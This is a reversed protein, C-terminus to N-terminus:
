QYEALMKTVCDRIIQEDPQLSTFRKFQAIAQRIFMEMGPITKAGVSAAERLLLTQRPNYITDFVVMGPRLLNSALPSRNCNPYMGISTCNIIIDSPISRTGELPAYSCHFEEALIRAKDLTRNYITVNARVDTLGAVVARAAGGAGLVAISRNRLDNRDINLAHVLADIAGTYDTNYGSALEGYGIKITNVAGIRAALPDIYCGHEHLYELANTKHPITVSFGHFDPDKSKGATLVHDFFRSFEAWGGELLIPVYVANIDMAEFLGNFIAPSISHAIPNGVVGYIRTDPCVFGFRYQGRIQLCTLQGPATSSEDDLSAFTIFSGFKGALIRSIQGAPGMCLVITDSRCKRLLEFAAFCDNIHGARFVIKPIAADCASVINDYTEQLDEFPGHFNHTSLILRCTPHCLLARRLPQCFESRCYNAYECDIYQVGQRIADLLIRLRLSPSYDKRGGENKDRCTVIVPTGTSQAHTILRTAVVPDLADIYDMRLEIVDALPAARDIAMVAEDFHSHAIPIALLTM